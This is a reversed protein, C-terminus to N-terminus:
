KAHHEDELASLSRKKPMRTKKELCKFAQRM